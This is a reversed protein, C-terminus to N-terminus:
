IKLFALLRRLWTPLSWPQRSPGDHLANSVLHGLM